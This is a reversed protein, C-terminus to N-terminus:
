FSNLHIERVIHQCQGKNTSEIKQIVEFVDNKIKSMPKNKNLRRLNKVKAEAMIQDMQHIDILHGRLSSAPLYYQYQCNFRLPCLFSRRPDNVRLDNPILHKTVPIKSYVARAILNAIPALFGHYQRM